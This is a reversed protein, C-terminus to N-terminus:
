MREVPKIGLLRFYVEMFTKYQSVLHLRGASAAKDDTIAQVKEYWDHFLKALDMGYFTLRHVGYDTAMEQVLAPLQAMKKILEREQPELKSLKPADASIGAEKAKGLISNARAYTYMVYWYPNKQSEEKALDLDFDMHSDATRMLFFFRAVDASVEDILEDTTVYTGARKSMKVERGDKILRVFQMIVFDLEKGPCLKNMTLKLSPVQGSHDAGWVKIAKDFGRKEFIDLHYAIDNGLYTVDGGTKIIPRDREDGLKSTTAWAAGDHEEYLGAQKLHEIAEQFPKGELGGENFWEDFNIGMKEISPRLYEKFIAQTLIKGLVKDDKETLEKKYEVALKEIYDGKYESSEPNNLGAAAKVSEVLKSIQTGADNFYYERHVQSGNHQLVNALVDGIFGGRANGLTLPGTPNASIFEVQVKADSKQGTAFKDDIKALQKQWFEDTMSLNVFGAGAPEATRVAEDKISDALRKAIETPSLKLQGALKFPANTSFDGFQSEAYEVDLVLEVKFEAKIAGALIDAIDSLIM